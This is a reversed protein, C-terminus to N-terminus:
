KAASEVQGIRNEIAGAWCATQRATAGCAALGARIEEDNIRALYPALWRLDAVTISAKVDQQHKGSYGFEVTDGHVGAIFRPTDLAYGSCDSRTRREVGGWRGLTSGWDFFSYLLEPRGDPGPVRFVATNAQEQGDRSDKADWNSLLMMLVRLGAFEHSGRFPNDALSWAHDKLFDLEKDDRLQFRARKFTGDRKVLSGTRHLRSPNDIRGPGVFYSPEAVYGAAAVLRSSFCEPTVKSGFKVTYSRGNADTVALKPSTGELDEKVFHFPPKPAHDCGAFTCTFDEVTVNRPARWIAQPLTGAAM